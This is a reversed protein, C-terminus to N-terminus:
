DMSAVLLRDEVSQSTYRVLQVKYGLEQLRAARALDLLQKAQKGLIEKETRTFSKEFERSPILTRSPTHNAAGSRHESAIETAMHMLDPLWFANGHSAICDKSKTLSSQNASFDPEIRQSEHIFNDTTDESPHQGGNKRRSLPKGLSAWQSAAAAVLFAESDLGLANWFAKGSFHEWTCLYHCCTAVACAPRQSQPAISELSDIAMDSAPGCLHKSMCFCCQKTSSSSDSKSFSLYKNWDLAAIDVTERQVVTEKADPIQNKQPTEQLRARIHRDRCSSESFEQRDILLYSFNRKCRSLRDSLRGTGAGLEIALTRTTSQDEGNEQWAGVRRLHELISVEQLVHKGGGGSTVSEGHEYLKSQQPILEQLPPPLLSHRRLHPLIHDLKVLLRQVQDGTINSIKTRGPTAVGEQHSM